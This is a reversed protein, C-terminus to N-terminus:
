KTILEQTCKKEKQIKKGFEKKFAMKFLEMEDKLLMNEAVIGAPDELTELGFVFSRLKEPLTNINESTPTWNDWLADHCDHCVGSDQFPDLCESCIM